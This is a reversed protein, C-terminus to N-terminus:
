QYFRKGSKAMEVLAPAPTWRKGFRAQYGEIRKLVEGAGLTDVYRFPGGRFPPFGLGFIAGIDGDRVSRLLGEGYCHIAENIFQLSCRMQIEEASVPSKAKPDPVPLGIVGYISEDVHKGKGKKKAAEGYLYFGRENKRGKRNDAVLKPMTPPPLMRDGFAEVMIPGVHAAVDIGVEDLLAVPGVPWGWATMAKDIAQVSVGETLLWSAENMLPGLIRSTYFGVGDNVVIVTKGQKKGVAVATAVVEDSTQKTRIVELLPMKHVPSFYHMGVVNEPHKSAAAIKGIPISSTNSAFIVGERCAGEVEQVVKHKIGLDEFVAEIALDVSRMGSYDVTATLLALKEEREIRTLQRKKVREDLIDAVYKLGRGLSADDRDRLRVPIGGNISVYAIGAGMLGAGVMAIKEVKRPKVSPDDVGTDKKLATTAFFIEMLRHATSSVVLEGFSRAVVDQSAAFGGDAYTKLVELIREPAPYHGGTKKLLEERAKKFLLARGIPNEELAAKQLSAVDLKMGKKKKDSRAKFPPGKEALSLALRAAVDQLIPAPVVDDAVGLSRAKAARMSKGTLGYDLATQLGVIAALRQLGDIGPLLGLQVEPLGLQTKPDNSLVRAHCVLAIEMGGGLAAGHIAAVLPKPLNLLREVSKQGKRCMAEAQAATTVNKLMEIDAGAIWTDRKGSVLIAGKIEPNKTIEAAIREFEETFAEKLTNVSEGPVDYTVVAVGDPRVSMSLARAGGTGSNTKDAESM